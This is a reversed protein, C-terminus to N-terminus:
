VYTYLFMHVYIHTNIYMHISCIILYVDYVNILVSYMFVIYIYWVYASSMFVICIYWVYTYIWIYIHFITFMPKSINVRTFVRFSKFVVFVNWSVWFSAYLCYYMINVHTVRSITMDLVHILWVDHGVCLRTMDWVDHGVCLRTVDWVLKRCRSWAISLSRLSVGLILSWLTLFFISWLNEDCMGFFFPFLLTVHWIDCTVHSIWVNLM